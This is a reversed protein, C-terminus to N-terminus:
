HPLLHCGPGDQSSAARKHLNKNPTAVGVFRGQTVCVFVDCVMHCLRM